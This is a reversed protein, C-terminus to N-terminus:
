MLSSASLVSSTTSAFDSFTMFFIGNLPWGFLMATPRSPRRTYTPIAWAGPPTSTMSVADCFFTLVTGVFPAMWLAYTVGSPLYTTAPEIAPFDTFTISACVSVGAHVRSM